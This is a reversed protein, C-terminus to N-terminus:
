CGSGFNFLVELLDADDVTGDGTLDEPLNTGTNGFAFLVALLDADDVCGNGDVDGEEPLVSIDLLFAEYRGTARNIATGVVYWANPSMGRVEIRSAEPHRLARTRGEQPFWLELQLEGNVYRGSLCKSADASMRGVGRGEFTYRPTAVPPDQSTDVEWICGFGRYQQQDDRIGFSGAVYRGDSSVTLAHGGVMVGPPPFMSVDKLVGDDFVWIAPYYYDWGAVVKGDDSVSELGRSFSQSWVPLGNAASVYLAQRLGNQNIGDGVAISGDASVDKVNYFPSGDLNFLQLQASSHIWRFYGVQYGGWVINGDNSVAASPSKQGLQPAIEQLGDQRSWRFVSYASGSWRYGVVVANNSVQTPIFDGLWTITQSWSTALLSLACASVLARYAGQFSVIRRM